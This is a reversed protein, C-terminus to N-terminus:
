ECSYYGSQDVKNKCFKASSTIYVDARLKTRFKELYAIADNKGNFDRSINFYLRGVKVIIPDVIGAKKLNSNEYQSQPLNTDATFVIVYSETKPITTILKVNLANQREKISLLETQM